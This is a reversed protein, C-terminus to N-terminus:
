DANRNVLVRMAGVIQAKENKKFYVAGINSPKLFLQHRWNSQVTLKTKAAKKM